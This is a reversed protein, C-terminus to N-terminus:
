QTELPYSFPRIIMDEMTILAMEAKMAMTTMIVKTEEKTSLTRRNAFIKPSSAIIIRFLDVHDVVVEKLKDEMVEVVELVLNEKFATVEVVEEKPGQLIMVVLTMILGSTTILGLTEIEESTTLIMMVLAGIEELAVTMLTMNMM